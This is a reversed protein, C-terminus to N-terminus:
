LNSVDVDKAAVRLAEPAIVARAEAHEVVLLWVAGVVHERLELGPAHEFSHYRLVDVAEVGLGSRTPHDLHVPRDLRSRATAARGRIWASLELLKEVVLADGTAFAALPRDLRIHDQEALEERLPRHLLC